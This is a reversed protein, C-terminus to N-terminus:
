QQYDHYQKKIADYKIDFDLGYQSCVSLLQQLGASYQVNVCIVLDDAYMLGSLDDMNVNFLCPSVVGGLFYTICLKGM